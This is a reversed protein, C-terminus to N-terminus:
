GFPMAGKSVRVSNPFPAGIARPQGHVEVAISAHALALMLKALKQIPAPMENLPHKAIETMAIDSVALVAEYFETIQDQTSTCRAEMRAQTTDKAWKDVFRELSSFEAPLASEQNESM